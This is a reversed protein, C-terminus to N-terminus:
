FVSFIIIVDCFQSSACHLSSIIGVTLGSLLFVNNRIDVFISHHVTFRPSKSCKKVYLKSLKKRSARLSIEVPENYCELDRRDLLMVPSILKLEPM